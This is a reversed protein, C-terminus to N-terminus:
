ILLVKLDTTSVKFSIPTKNMFSYLRDTYFVHDIILELPIFVWPPNSTALVLSPEGNAYFAFCNESSLFSKPSFTGWHGLSMQQHPLSGRM